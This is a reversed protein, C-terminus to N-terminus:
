EDLAQSNMKIGYRALGRKIWIRQLAVNRSNMQCADHNTPTVRSFDEDLVPSEVAFLNDLRETRLRRADLQGSM